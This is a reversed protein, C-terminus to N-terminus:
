GGDEDAPDPGGGPRPVLWELLARSLALGASGLGLVVMAMDWRLTAVSSVLLVALVAVLLLFSRGRPHGRPNVLLLILSGFHVRRLLDYASRKRRDHLLRYARDLNAMRLGDASSGGLGPRYIRALNAYSAQIKAASADSAVGLEAYYDPLVDFAGPQRM